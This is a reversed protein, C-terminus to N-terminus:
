ASIGYREALVRLHHSEHGILARLMWSPRILLGNAVGQRERDEPTMLALWAITAASESAYAAALDTLGVAEPPWDRAYLNEDYGPLAKTEGRAVAVARSVFVRHSILVHGVVQRVTWKGPAYAYGARDHPLSALFRGTAALHARLPAEWGTEPAADLYDTWPPLAEAGVHDVLGTVLGNMGRFIAM